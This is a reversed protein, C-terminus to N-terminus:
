LISLTLCTSSEFNTVLHTDAWGSRHIISGFVLSMSALCVPEEERKYEENRSHFAQGGILCQCTRCWYTGAGASGRRVGARKSM